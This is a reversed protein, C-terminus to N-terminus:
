KDHLDSEGSSSGRSAARSRSRRSSSALRLLSRCSSYWSRIIRVTSTSSALLALRRPPEARTYFNVSSFPDKRVFQLIYM